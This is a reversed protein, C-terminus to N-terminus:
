EAWYRYFEPVEGSKGALHKTDDNYPICYRHHGFGVVFPYTKNEEDIYSLFGAYWTKSLSDTVLVKYFPRLIKPDFKNPVLEYSEQCTFPLSMENDLVYDIDRIETIINKQKSLDRQHRIKDGVKFKPVILKELSKTKSNWKYGNEELAKFLIQKEEETAFRIENRVSKGFLPTNIGILDECNLGKAVYTRFLTEDGWEKFIAITDNYFVIDGAIFPTQFGEWTTKGKPFIICKADEINVNQGYKTLRTSFGCKMEICIPYNCNIDSSVSKLTVNDYMTCDLEMGKPCDQLIKVLDLKLTEM